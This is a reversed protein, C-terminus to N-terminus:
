CTSWRRRTARPRSSRMTCNSASRRTRLDRAMPQYLTLIQYAHDETRHLQDRIEQKKATVQDALAIDREVLASVADCFMERALEGMDHIEQQLQALEAEFRETM